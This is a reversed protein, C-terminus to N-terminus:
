ESLGCSVPVESEVKGNTNVAEFSFKKACGLSGVDVNKRKKLVTLGSASTLGSGLTSRASGSTPLSTRPKRKRLRAAVVEEDDDEDDLGVEESDDEVATDKKWDEDETSDEAGDEVVPSKAVATDSMRRLRRLKRVPQSPPTSDESTAWEFKEKGLDVEEEDGDDYKVRHRRSGANYSEVKGKYWADDLPWYVRLRRGVVEAAPEAAAV